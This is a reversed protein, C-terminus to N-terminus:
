YVLMFVAFILLYTSYINDSILVDVTLKFHPKEVNSGKFYERGLHDALHRYFPCNYVFSMVFIMKSIMISYTSGIVTAL